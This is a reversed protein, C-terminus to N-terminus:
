VTDQSSTPQTISSRCSTSLAATVYYPWAVEGASGVSKEQYFVGELPFMQFPKKMDRQLVFQKFFFSCCRGLGRRSSISKNVPLSSIAGVRESPLSFNREKSSSETRGVKGLRCASRPNSPISEVIFGARQYNQHDALLLWAKM